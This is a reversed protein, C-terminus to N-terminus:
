HPELQHPIIWNTNISPRRLPELFKSKSAVVYVYGVWGVISSSSPLGNQSDREKSPYGIVLANRLSIGAFSAPRELNLVRANIQATLLLM